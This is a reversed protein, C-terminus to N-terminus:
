VHDSDLDAYMWAEPRRVLDAVAGDETLVKVLFATRSPQARWGGDLLARTLPHGPTLRMRAMAIGRSRLHELVELLISHRLAHEDAPVALDVIWGGWENEMVVACGKLGESGDALLVRYRVGPRSLRWQGYEVTRAVAVGAKQSVGLQALRPDVTNTWRFSVGDPPTSKRHYVDRIGALAALFRVLSPPLRGTFHRAVAKRYNLVRQYVVMFGLTDWGLKQLGKLSPGEQTLGYVFAIGARRAASYCERALTDFIGQRRYDPHTATGVSQAASLRRGDVDMRVPAVAYHGVLREGDVALVVLSPDFKAPNDRFLWDWYGQDGVSGPGFVEHLL